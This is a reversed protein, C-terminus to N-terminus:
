TEMRSTDCIRRNGPEAYQSNRQNPIRCGYLKYITYTTSARGIFSYNKVASELKKTCRQGSVSSTYSHKSWM